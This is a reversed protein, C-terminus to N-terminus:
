LRADLKLFGTGSTFSPYHLYLQGVTLGTFNGFSYIGYDPGNSGVIAVNAASQTANQSTVNTLSIPATVSVSPAARMGSHRVAFDISTSIGAIGAGEMAIIQLYRKCLQLEQDYPRMIFPARGASPLEIGPLVILGTISIQNGATAVLNTTAATGSMLTGSQWSGATGQYTTGTGFCFRVMMGKSNDATWTGATDGPVTLTKYEWTNSAHIAVDVLYYRNAAGNFVCVAMNGVATSYVYFGISLSQANATGWGLRAIRRGEIINQLFVQDTAALSPKGTGVTLTLSASFGPPAAGTYGPWFNMTLPASGQYAGWGDQAYLYTASTLTFPGGGAAFEQSVECSGNVQIGNFALADFPASYANIKAQDQQAPTLTQSTDYRIAGDLTSLGATVWAHGDWSWTPTNPVSPSPYLQGITPNAPFNLGM